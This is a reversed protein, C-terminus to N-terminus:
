GRVIKGIWNLGLLTESTTRTGHSQGPITIVPQIIHEQGSAQEGAQEGSAIQISGNSFVLIRAGSLQAATMTGELKEAWEESCRSLFVKGSKEMVGHGQLPCFGEVRSEYHKAVHSNVGHLSQVGFENIQVLKGDVRVIMGTLGPIDVWRVDGIFKTSDPSALQEFISLDPFPTALLLFPSNDLLQGERARSFNPKYYTEEEPSRRFM